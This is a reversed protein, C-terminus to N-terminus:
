TVDEGPDSVEIIYRPADPDVPLRRWRAADVTLIPCISADAVAAVHADWPDLSTRAMVSALGAAQDADRLPAIEANDLQELGHLAADADVSRVDLSAGALALVPLVLPWGRADLELILGSIDSDARAIATLVSVDLIYPTPVAGADETM